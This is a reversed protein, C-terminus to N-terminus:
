GAELRDLEEEAKRTFPHEAGLKSRGIRVLEALQGRADELQDRAAFV